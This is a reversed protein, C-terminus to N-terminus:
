KLGPFKIEFMRHFTESKEKLRKRSISGSKIDSFFDKLNQMFYESDGDLKQRQTGVDMGYSLIAGVMTELPDRGQQTDGYAVNSLSMSDAIDPKSPGVDLLGDFKPIESDDYEEYSELYKDYGKPKVDVDWSTKILQLIHGAIESFDELEDLSAEKITKNKM